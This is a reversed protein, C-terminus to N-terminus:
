ENNKYYDHLEKRLKTKARFILSEVSSLTSQQVDAIEQYSLGEINHLVFAVKQNPALKDIAQFLIRAKEKDELIVGPHRLDPVQINEQQDKGFLSTIMAFRKKVKKKRICELSKNVAIRYIWTSLSADERFRGIARYVEVFVEQTVDEADEPNLVFSISTNFVKKQYDDVLKKFANQNGSKLEEVLIEGQLDEVM